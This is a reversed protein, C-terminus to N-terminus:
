SSYLEVRDLIAHTQNSANTHMIIVHQRIKKQFSNVNFM